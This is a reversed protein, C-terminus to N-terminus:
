YNICSNYKSVEVNYLDIIVKLGTIGDNVQKAFYNYEQIKQNYYSRDVNPDTKINNLTELMIAAQAQMQNLSLASSDILIKTEPNPKPCNSMPLAFVQVAITVSEGEFIGQKVAVGLKTYQNNLINARHGPSDMWASIIGQNGDFNGLALNEGILLYDYNLKQALNSVSNGTPSQHEFYQNAFLDDARLIAISDLIPDASLSSLANALRENNTYSLIESNNGYYPTIISNIPTFIADSRVILLPVTTAIQSQPPPMFTINQAVPINGTAVAQPQGSIIVPATSTVITSIVEEIEPTVELSPYVNPDSYDNFTYRKQMILYYIIDSVRSIVINATRQIITIPNFSFASAQAPLMFSSFIIIFIIFVLGGKRLLRIM